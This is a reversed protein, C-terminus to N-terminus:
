IGVMYQGFGENPHGAAIIRHTNTRLRSVLLMRGAKSWVATADKLHRGPLPETRAVLMANPKQAIMRVADADHNWFGPYPSWTQATRDVAFADFVDRADYGLEGIQDLRCLPLPSSTRDGPLKLVHKADLSWHVQMLHSQAFIAGTWNETLKPAPLSCIEGLIGAHSAIVKTQGATTMSATSAEIRAAHDLAEHISRPNRWLNVYITNGAKEKPGLSRAIFLLESLDTNESFNPRETDHSTIVIELHFRDAIRRRISSWAEGTAVAIPLVFAIRGGQKVRKEALPVFM